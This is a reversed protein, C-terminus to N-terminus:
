VIISQEPIVDIRFAENHIKRQYHSESRIKIWSNLWNEHFKTCVSNLEPARNESVRQDTNLWYMQYMAKSFPIRHADFEIKSSRKHWVNSMRPFMRIFQYSLQTKRIANGPILNLIPVILLWRPCWIRLMTTGTFVFGYFKHQTGCKLQLVTEYVRLRMTCILNQPLVCCLELMRWSLIYLM